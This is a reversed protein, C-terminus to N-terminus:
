VFVRPLGLTKCIHILIIRIKRSKCPIERIKAGLISYKPPFAFFAAEKMDYTNMLNIAIKHLFKRSSVM